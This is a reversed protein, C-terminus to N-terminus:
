ETNSIQIFIKLLFFIKNQTGIAVNIKKNYAGKKKNVSIKENKQVGKWM